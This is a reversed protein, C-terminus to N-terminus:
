LFKSRALKLPLRRHATTRSYLLANHLPQRDLEIRTGKAQRSLLRQISILFAERYLTSCQIFNKWPITSSCLMARGNPGLNAVLDLASVHPDFAGHLQPYPRRQYDMYEVNIAAQEFLEHKLYQRAGHGTIYVTGGLASTIDVLRRTSTGNIGLSSSRLFQPLLGFYRALAEIGAICLEGLNCTPLRLTTEAIHLMDVRFPARAYTHTLTTLMKERWVQSEEVITECILQGHKRRVPVSMWQSGAHTKIQVRTSFSRGQPLQVDDYHVFIDASQVQEFLGAWPFFM